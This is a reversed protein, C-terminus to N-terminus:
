YGLTILSYSLRPLTSGTGVISPPLTLLWSRNMLPPVPYLLHSTASFHFPLHNDM